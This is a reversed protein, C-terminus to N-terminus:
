FPLDDDAQPTCRPCAATDSIIFAGHRTPLEVIGSGGCRPCEGTILAHLEDADMGLGEPLEGVFRTDWYGGDWNWSQEFVSPVIRPNGPWVRVALLKGDAACIAASRQEGALIITGVSVTAGNERVWERIDNLNM